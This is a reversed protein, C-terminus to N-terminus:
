NGFIKDYIWDGADRMKEMVADRDQTMKYSGYAGTTNSQYRRIAGDTILGRKGDIHKPELLGLFVLRKQAKLVDQEGGEPSMVLRFLSDDEPTWMANLKSAKESDKPMSETYFFRKSTDFSGGLNDEEMAM